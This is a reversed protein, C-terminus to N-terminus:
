GLCYEKQQAMHKTNLCTHQVHVHHQDTSTKTTQKQSNTKNRNAKDPKGTIHLINHPHVVFHKVDVKDSSETEFFFRRQKAFIVSIKVFGVGNSEDDFSSCKM